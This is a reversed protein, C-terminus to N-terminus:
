VILIKSPQELKSCKERFQSFVSLIVPVCPLFLCPSGIKKNSSKFRWHIATLLGKELISSTIVIALQWCAFIKGIRASNLKNLFTMLYLLQHGYISSANAFIVKFITCVKRLPCVYVLGRGPWYRVHACLRIVHATAAVSLQKARIPRSSCPLATPNILSCKELVKVASTFAFCDILLWSWVVCKPTTPQSGCLLEVM